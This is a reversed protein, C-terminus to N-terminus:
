QLTGLSVQCFEADLWQKCNFHNTVQDAEQQSIALPQQEGYNM